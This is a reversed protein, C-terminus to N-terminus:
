KEKELEARELWYLLYPINYAHTWGFVRLGQNTEWNTFGHSSKPLNSIRLLAENFEKQDSFKDTPKPLKSVKLVESRKVAENLFSKNGTFEYGILLPYITALYSEMECGWGKAKQVEKEIKGDRYIKANFGKIREQPSSTPGQPAHEPGNQLISIQDNWTKFNFLKEKPNRDYWEGIYLPAIVKTEDNLHYRLSLGCAAIRDNPQTWGPNDATEESLINEGQTAINYHEGPLIGHKDPVGTYTLTHLMKIYSKGAYAHITITFPSLNNDNRHYVYTGEVRFIVHM